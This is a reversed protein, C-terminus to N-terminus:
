VTPSTSSGAKALRKAEKKAQKAAKKEEKSPKPWNADPGVFIKGPHIVNFIVLAFFMPLSDFIYIFIEHNSITTALKSTNDGAFEIIRFIVRFSILALSLYLTYLLPQVSKAREPDCERSLRRRFIVSLVTFCIIFFQQLAVGATYIHLGTNITSNDDSTTIAAGALQLIFMGVDLGVFFLGVRRAAFGCIRKDPLCYNVLRGLLLFDFANMWMPAILILIFQAEYVHSLDVQHICVLRLIYSITELSAGMSIIWANRMRYQYTQFIHVCTTLGFLVAFLIAAPESPCYSWYVNPNQFIAPDCTPM